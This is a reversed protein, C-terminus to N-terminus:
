AKIKKVSGGERLFPKFIKDEITKSEDELKKMLLEAAAVGLEKKYQHVTTLDPNLFKVFDMNDYGVVSLEGPISIGAKVAEDYVNLATLDSFCFVATFDGACLIFDAPSVFTEIEVGRSKLSNCFRLCRAQVLNDLAGICAIKRHGKGYLCDAALEGGTKEDNCACSLGKLKASVIVLPIEKSAKRLFAHNNKDNAIVPGVILGDVSKTKMFKLAELEKEADYHSVSLIMHYKYPTITEEIGSIIDFWFSKNIAGVTVVGILYTKKGAIARAHINPNFNNERIIKEIRECTAKSIKYKEAKGNLYMSATTLSVGAKEAIDKLTLKKKM